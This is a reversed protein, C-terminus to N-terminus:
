LRGMLETKKALFEEETLVGTDRLEGLKRIQTFVDDQGAVAPEPALRDTVVPRSSIRNRVTEVLIVRRSRAGNQHDTWSM